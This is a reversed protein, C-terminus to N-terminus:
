SVDCEEAGLDVNLRGRRPKGARLMATALSARAAITEPHDRGRQAETDALVRKYQEAAERPM